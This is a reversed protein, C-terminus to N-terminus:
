KEFLYIAGADTDGDVAVKHTGIVAKSESISVSQGFYTGEEIEFKEKQKWELGNFSFVYAAGSRTIRGAEESSGVIALNESISVDNGLRVVSSWDDVNLKYEVWDENEKVFVYAAGHSGHYPAGVIIMDGNISVSTGFNDNVGGDSATLKAKETWAGVEKEFIYVAGANTNKTDNNNSGIVAINGSISVSNGFKNYETADSAILKTEIWSSGNDEYLYASGASPMLSSDEPAGVIAVGGDIDVSSAYKDTANQISATLKTEVWSTGNDKYIYAAGYSSTGNYISGVIAESGSTAVTRGYQDNSTADSAKLKTEIWDSGDYKYIYAAGASSGFGDEGYAGSIITNGSIDSDFGFYDRNGSNSAILQNTLISPIEEVNINNSVEYNNNIPSVVIVFNAFTVSTSLALGGLILVNKNKM